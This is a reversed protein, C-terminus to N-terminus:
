LGEPRDMTQEFYHCTLVKKGLPSYVSVWAFAVTENRDQVNLMFGM